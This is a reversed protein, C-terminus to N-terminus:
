LHYSYSEKIIVNNNNIESISLLGDSINSYTNASISTIPIENSVPTGNLNFIRMAITYQPDINTSLATMYGVVFGNPNYTDNSPLGAVFPYKRSYLANPNILFKDNQEFNTIWDDNLESYEADM